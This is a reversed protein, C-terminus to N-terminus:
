QASTLDPRLAAAAGLYVHQIEDQAKSTNLQLMVRVVLPLRGPVPIEQNCLLPVRTM